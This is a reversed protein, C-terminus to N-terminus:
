RGAVRLRWWLSCLPKVVFQVDDLLGFEGVIEQDDPIDYGERPFLVDEETNAAAGCGADDEVAQPYGVDVGQCVLQHELAEQIHLALFHRVDIEVKM